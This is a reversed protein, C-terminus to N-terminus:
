KPLPSHYLPSEEALQDLMSQLDREIRAMLPDVKAKRDRNPSVDIAEGVQIIVHLSGHVRVKDTLDEEYRELTELLRDVSPRALYDSPYCSVQQALYIDALQQWRRQREDETLEGNVMDPLLKMRLAKVRPVVSGTQARGVWEEELPQLLRDILGTVRDAFRGSQEQGFHEIEKLCLLGRGLKVIRDYVSLHRQPLWSFRREIDTLVEDAVNALDGRFLYKIGVPHVVVSGEATHKARRKAATRAIFAVGDLLAHLRDNTRSVAGEPFLVLPREATELIEIATNIAQRDVGERYVSFGGMKRIAWATFWGQNFLHWSAMGYVHTGVHRALWGLVLPDGPRCHNPALMIGHGAELSEKLRETNRLEYSVVGESKRLWRGYLDFRQIFNPWWTGRHPPVFEYPKENVINQM